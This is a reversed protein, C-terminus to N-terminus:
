HNAHHYRETSKLNKELAHIGIAEGLLELMGYYTCRVVDPASSSQADAEIIAHLVHNDKFCYRSGRDILKRIEEPNQMREAHQRLLEVPIIPLNRLSM